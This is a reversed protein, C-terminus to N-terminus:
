SASLCELVLQRFLDLLDLAGMRVRLHLQPRHIFMPNAELRDDLADLGARPLTGEDPDVLAVFPERHISKDVGGDPSLWHSRSGETL